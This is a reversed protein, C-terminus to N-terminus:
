LTIEAKFVNRSYDFSLHYRGSDDAEAGKRSFVGVRGPSVSMYTSTGVFTNAVSNILEGSVGFDCIKIDGKSNVLINSPKIDPWAIEEMLPPKPVFEVASAGRHMIRHEDYLYTLGRLVAESIKGVIDISVAGHKKYIGDLSRVILLLEPTLSPLEMAVISQRVEDVSM